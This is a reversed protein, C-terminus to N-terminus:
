TPDSPPATGSALELLEAFADSEPAGMTHLESVQGALIKLYATHHYRADAQDVTEDAKDAATRIIAIRLSDCEELRGTARLARITRDAERRMRAVAHDGTDFLRPSPPRSM